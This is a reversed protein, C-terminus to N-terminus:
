IMANKLDGSDHRCRPDPTTMNRYFAYSHAPCGGSCDQFCSCHDSQCMTDSCTRFQHMVPHELMVDIKDQLINGLNFESFGFFLNCPFTSGDPLVALKAAGAQCRSHALIGRQFFGSAAVFGIDIEGHLESKLASYYRMFDPFSLIEGPTRKGIIDEHLLFYKKIGREGLYHILNRIEQKNRVTLVSKVITNKGEELSKSIGRLIADFTNSGTTANHTDAFGHLSFGINLLHTPIKAIAHVTDPLSGNTSINVTLGASTAYVLFNIMYPM